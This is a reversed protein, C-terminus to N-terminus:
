NYSIRKALGEPLWVAIKLTLAELPASFMADRWFTQRPLATLGAVMVLVLVIVAGRVLGFVAGLARDLAGIGLTKIIESLAITLLSMVLLTALFLAVFAALLRLGENPVAAPLLAGVQPAYTSAVWFAALWSLLALMERVAGRLVSLLVSFGIILLVAYDFATM